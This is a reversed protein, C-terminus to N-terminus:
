FGPHLEERRKNVSTGLLNTERSGSRRRSCCCAGVVAAFALGEESGQMGNHFLLLAGAVSVLLAGVLRGRNNASM